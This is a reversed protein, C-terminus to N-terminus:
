RKLLREKQHPIIQVIAPPKQLYARVLDLLGGRNTSGTVIDAEELAAADQPFAQPYCGTLVM